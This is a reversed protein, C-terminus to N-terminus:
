IAVTVSNSVLGLRVTVVTETAATDQVTGAPAGAPVPLFSRTLTIPTNGSADSTDGASFEWPIGDTEVSVSRGAIATGDSKRLQILLEMTRATLPDAGSNPLDAIEGQIIQISPGRVALTPRPVGVDTRPNLQAYM